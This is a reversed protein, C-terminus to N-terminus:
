RAILRQLSAFLVMRRGIGIDVMEIRGAKVMAWYKTNGIDLLRRATSASVVIPNFPAPRPDPATAPAACETAASSCLVQRAGGTERYNSAVKLEDVSNM